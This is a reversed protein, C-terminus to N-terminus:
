RRIKDVLLKVTYSIIKDELRIL